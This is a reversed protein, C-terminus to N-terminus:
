WTAWFNLMVFRGQFELLSIKKGDLDSLIFKPADINELMSVGMQNLYDMEGKATDGTAILFLFLSFIFLLHRMTRKQLKMFNAVKGM